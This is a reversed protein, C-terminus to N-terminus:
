MVEFSMKQNARPTCFGTPVGQEKTGRSVCDLMIAAWATYTTKSKNRQKLGHQGGKQQCVSCTLDMSGVPIDNKQPSVEMTPIIQNTIPGSRTTNTTGKLAMKLSM